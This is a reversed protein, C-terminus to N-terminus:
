GHDKRIYNEKYKWNFSRLMKHTITSSPKFRTIMRRLLSSYLFKIKFGYKKWTMLRKYVIIQELFINKLDLFFPKALKTADRDNLANKDHM